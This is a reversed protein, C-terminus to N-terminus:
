AAPASDVSPSFSGIVFFPIMIILLQVIWGIACVLVARPTSDYDLAQRVAVVLTALSWFATIIMVLPGIVPVFGVVRLLGPAAAFGLTRLLQGIDAETSPQPLLRTGIFYTLFAWIYWGVLNLILGLVLGPQGEIGATGIGGAISALVVVTMAQGMSSPDAEVEEYLSADLRAARIVRDLM